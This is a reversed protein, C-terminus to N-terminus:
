TANLPLVIMGGLAFFVETICRYGRRFLGRLVGFYQHIFSSRVRRTSTTEWNRRVTWGRIEEVSPLVMLEQLLTVGQESARLASFAVLAASYREVAHQIDQALKELNRRARVGEKAGSVSVQKIRIHLWLRRLATRVDSLTVDVAEQRLSYEDLDAANTNNVTMRHLSPSPM